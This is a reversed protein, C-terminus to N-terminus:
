GVDAMLVVKGGVGKMMGEMATAAGQIQFMRHLRWLVNFIIQINDISQCPTGKRYGSCLWQMVIITTVHDNGNGNGYDNAHNEHKEQTESSM